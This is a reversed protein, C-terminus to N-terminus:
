DNDPSTLPQFPRQWIQSNRASRWRPSATSACLALELPLKQRAAGGDTQALCRLMQDIGRYGSEFLPQRVTALGLYKSNDSHDFGIASLEEPMRRSLEHAAQLVGLAQTDSPAFVATSPENLARDIGIPRDQSSTFSFASHVPGGVFAIRRHVSELM